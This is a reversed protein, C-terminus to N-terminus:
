ISELAKDREVLLEEPAELIPKCVPMARCQGHKGCCTMYAGGSRFYTPERWYHTPECGCMICKTGRRSEWAWEPKVDDSM